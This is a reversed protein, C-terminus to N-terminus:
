SVNCTALCLNLPFCEYSRVFSCYMCEGVAQHMVIVSSMSIGAAEWAMCADGARETRLKKERKKPLAATTPAPLVPAADEDEEDDLLAYRANQKLFARAAAEQTRQSPAAVPPRGNSGSKGPLKDFLEQAFQRTGNSAPLGGQMSPHITILAFTCPMQVSDM